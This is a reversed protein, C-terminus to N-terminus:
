PSYLMNRAIDVCGIVDANISPSRSTASSPVTSYMFDQGTHKRAAKGRTRLLRTAEARHQEENVAEPLVYVAILTEEGGKSAMADSYMAKIMAAM